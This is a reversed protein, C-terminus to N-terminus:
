ETRASRDPGAFHKSAALEGIRRGMDAGVETSGRYHIGEYVRADGVERVFDDLSSWSRAAGGATPSTTRLIPVAGGVEAKLVAAVAGALIAHASPYEPHPPEASLPAWTADRETADNGDIDGNRIATVPRWFNYHYKADFVSIMADDMAQAAAAFLRANRAPTRGPQDAVSRVVGDYIPPLSYEWFRAIETQEPRRRASNRAGIQKVENFDRAWAESDLGPPPAPRFQDARELLWPKRQPWQPVAVAATPVYVGATTLPRRAEPAVSGDEARMALAAEAAREGVAVGAAKAPGDAIRGIAAQYAADIRAREAPILKSLTARNAAAVAADVSAGRAAEGGLGPLSPRQEIASVAGDVATQVIAMARIAPPTGLKAAVILEGAKANWDTVVDAAAHRPLLGPMTLAAGLLAVSIRTAKDM